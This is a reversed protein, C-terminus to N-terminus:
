RYELVPLWDVLQFNSVPRRYTYHGYYLTSLGAIRDPMATESVRLEYGGFGADGFITNAWTTYSAAAELDGWRRSLIACWNVISADLPRERSRAQLLDLSNRDGGWARLVLGSISAAEPDLVDIAVEAGADDGTELSLVFRSSAPAVEFAARYVDPWLAARGPDATWWPDGALTPNLRLANAFSAAAARTNGLQQYVAGAGLAVGIQQDGLRLAEGLAAEAAASEGMQAQVASLNLWAEPLSDGAAAASLHERAGALEGTDALAIGLEFQSPIMAPDLQVATTLPGLADMPRRADLLDKGGSMQLAGAESWALFSASAVLVLVGAARSAKSLRSAWSGAQRRSPPRVRAESPDTADLWAIPIAFCFLIAPANAYFDLLQHAGFYVTAFLAAWGMRRRAADPDRIAGLLLRGLLLAVVLGAVLGTLGFEALTQVYLNHAHPIYYDPEGALTYAVRQPVWTGPGTGVLPSSEFMRLAAAWYTTRLGEGGATARLIIGPTVLVLALTGVIMPVIAIRGASRILEVLSARRAPALLWLGGVVVIAIALALWGARSGSIISTLGTLVLIAVATVRSWTSGGALHAVAPAALLVSATMVASPNGLTLGEFFPRLPPAALRGITDWWVVWRQVTVALYAIGILLAGIAAFGIMRPRFFPSAMLRQLILYLTTLLFALALYEASLRPQRSFITGITFAALAAAFAPALVTRPRWAPDRIAVTIWTAVVAFAPILAWIRLEAYYTAVWAGGWFLCYASLVAIASWTVTRWQFARGPMPADYEVM